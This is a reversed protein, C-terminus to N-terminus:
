RNHEKKIKKESKKEKKAKKEAKKAKKASKREKKASELDVDEAKMSPTTAAAPTEPDVDRASDERKVKKPSPESTSRDESKSRTPTEVENKIRQTDMTSTNKAAATAAVGSKPAATVSAAVIGGGLPMWRRKLGTKQPVHAYARRIPDVAAPAQDLRPALDTESATVATVANLHRAFPAPVPVLFKKGNEDDDDSSSDDDDNPHALPVLVRFSEHEVAHGWQLSYNTGNSEFYGPTTTATTPQNLQLSCGELDEINVSAPLRITWLEYRSSGNKQAGAPDSPLRFTPPDLAEDANNHSVDKKAAITSKTGNAFAVQKKRSNNSM